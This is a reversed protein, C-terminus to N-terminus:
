SFYTNIRNGWFLIKSRAANKMETFSDNFVRNFLYFVFNFSLTFLYSLNAINYFDLCDNFKICLISFIHPDMVMIVFFVFSFLDPLRFVFNFLSNTITMILSKMESKTKKNQDEERNSSMKMKEDLVKRLKRTTMVDLCLSIVCFVLYSAVDHIVIFTLLTPMSNLKVAFWNSMKYKEDYFLTSVYYNDNYLYSPSNVCAAFGFYQICTTQNLVAPLNLLDALTAKSHSFYILEYIVVISLLASIIFALSLVRRPRYNSAKVIFEVHGDNGLLIYRNMSIQILTVNSVLKLTSAIFSVVIDKILCNNKTYQKFVYIDNNYFSTPTCVIAFDLLYMLCYVLNIISNIFIYFFFLENILVIVQRQESNQSKSMASAKNKNKYKFKNFLITSIVLLNTLLGLTSVIPGFISIIRTNIFKLADSLDYSFFYSDYQATNAQAIRCNNVRHEIDCQDLWKAFQTVNLNNFPYNIHKFNNPKYFLFLYKWLWILTCSSQMQTLNLNNNLMNSVIVLQKHPFDHFLCFDSDSATYFQFPFLKFANNSNVDSIRLSITIIHDQIFEVQDLDTILAKDLNIRTVNLDYNLYKIWETGDVDHLFSQINNLGLTIQRLKNFHQFLNIPSIKYVALKELNFEVMDVFLRKDLVQEDIILKVSKLQNIRYANISANLNSLSMNALIFYFGSVILQDLQINRFLSICLKSPFRSNTFQLNRALQNIFGALTKNAHNPECGQIKNGFNDMINVTSYSILLNVPQFDAHHQTVQLTSDIGILNYFALMNNTIKYTQSFQYVLEMLGVLDLSDNLILMQSITAMSIGLQLTFDSPYFYSVLASQNRLCSAISLDQFSSFNQCQGRRSCYKYLGCSMNSIPSGTTLYILHLMVLLSFM